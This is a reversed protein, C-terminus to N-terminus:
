PSALVSRVREVGRELIGGIAESRRVDITGTWEDMFIKKVEVSLVCVQRPYRQNLWRALHGGTFKVNERVDLLRGQWPAHSLEALFPDVVFDWYGRDMTGTGLNVEPNTEKDAPAPGPGARRHNYSHLDLVLLRGFRGVAEEVLEEVMHYFRDYEELSRAILAAPPPERWVQLGWADAPELYVAQARPRNLDVQFRSDLAVVQQDGVHTWAGTGPDEERLREAESLAMNAAVEARLRHGDHIALALVPGCRGELRWSRRDHM